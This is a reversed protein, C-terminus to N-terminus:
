EFSVSPGVSHRLALIYCGAVENGDCPRLTLMNPTSRCLGLIEIPQHTPGDEGLCISDHTMIYLVQHKALASLRM